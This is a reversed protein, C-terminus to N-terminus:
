DSTAVDLKLLGRSATGKLAQELMNVVTRVARKKLLGGERAQFALSLTVQRLNSFRGLITDLRMKGEVAAFVQMFHEHNGGLDVHLEELSPPVNSLFSLICAWACGEMDHPISEVAYTDLKIIRLSTCAAVKKENERWVAMETGIDENIGLQLNTISAGADQLLDALAVFNNLYEGSVKIGTLTHVSPGRRVMELVMLEANPDEAAIELNKIRTQVSVNHAQFHERIRPLVLAPAYGWSEEGWNLASMRLQEVDSFLDLFAIFDRSSGESAPYFEIYIKKMTFRTAPLAKPDPPSAFPFGVLALSQLQPLKLMVASLLSLPTGQDEDRRATYIQPRRIHVSLANNDSESELFEVLSVLKEEKIWLREFLYQHAVHVWARCALSMARLVSKDFFSYDTVARAIADILEVPLPPINMDPVDFRTKPIPPSLPRNIGQQLGVLGRRLLRPLPNNLSSDGYAGSFPTNILFSLIRSWACDELTIGSRTTDVIHMILNITRLSTCAAIKKENERWVAIEIGTCEYIDFQFNTISEGAKQLLDSLVAFAEWSGGSIKMSTLSHTSPGRRILELVMLEASEHLSNVVVAKIRTQICLNEAQFYERIGSATSCDNSWIDGGWELGSIRLEEVDSFIDLFAIFDQLSGEAGPMFHVSIKRMTFLTNLLDQSDPIVFPFGLLALSRLHPLKSMLASLLSLPTEGDRVRYAVPTYLQIERVHTSLANNDSEGQLFDVLDVLKEVKVLLREFLRRQVVSSWTRCALSMARLVSKDYKSYETVAVTITDVLEVPLPPIIMDPVDLRTKLAPPQPLPQFLTGTNAM